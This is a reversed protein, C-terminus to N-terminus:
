ASLRFKKAVENLKCLLLLSVSDFQGQQYCQLVSFFHNLIDEYSVEILSTNQLKM